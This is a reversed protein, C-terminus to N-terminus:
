RESICPQAVMGRSSCYVALLVRRNRTPILNSPETVSSPRSSQFERVRADVTVAVGHREFQEIAPEGIEVFRANLTHRVMGRVRHRAHGESRKM